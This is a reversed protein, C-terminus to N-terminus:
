VLFSVLWEQKDKRPCKGLAPLDSSTEVTKNKICQVSIAKFLRGTMNHSDAISFLSSWTLLSGSFALEVTLYPFLKRIQSKGTLNHSNDNMLCYPLVASNICCCVYVGKGQRQEKTKQQIWDLLQWSGGPSSWSSCPPLSPSLSGAASLTYVEQELHLILNPM